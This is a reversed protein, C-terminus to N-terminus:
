VMMGENVLTKRIIINKIANFTFRVSTTDTACTTHFFLKKSPNRIRACLESEIFSICSDYDLPGTYDDWFLTIPCQELKEKFLDVKNLFVIVDSNECWEMNMTEEFVKLTEDMANVSDDEFLQENYSCLSVVYIVATVDDFSHIWKKRENRQGGVDVLLFSEGDITFETEVIGTTPARCFLIDQFSPVYDPQAIAELKAMYYGTSELLQFKHRQAYAGQIGADAWLAEIMPVVSFDIDQDESTSLAMDKWRQNMAAVQCGELEDSRRVLEKLSQIINTHIISKFSMLAEENFGDGYISILQKYITSKGSAGAGILL